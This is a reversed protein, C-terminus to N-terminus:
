TGTHSLPTDCLHGVRLKVRGEVTQPGILRSGQRSAQFDTSSLLQGCGSHLGTRYRLPAGDERTETKKRSGPKMVVLERLFAAQM